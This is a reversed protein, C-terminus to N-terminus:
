GAVEKVLDRFELQESVDVPGTSRHEVVRDSIAVLKANAGRSIATTTPLLAFSREEFKDDGVTVVLGSEEGLEAPMEGSAVWGNPTVVFFYVIGNSSAEFFSFDDETEGVNLLQSLDIGAETAAYGLPDEAAPELREQGMSDPASRMPNVNVAWASYGMKDGSGGNPVMFKFAGARFSRVDSISCAQAWCSTNATGYWVTIQLLGPPYVGTQQVTIGTRSNYVTGENYKVNHTALGNFFTQIAASAPSAGGGFLLAATAFATIALSRNRKSSM